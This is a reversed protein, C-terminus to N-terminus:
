QMSIAWADGLFKAAYEYSIYGYGKDGWTTGWQNQFKFLEKEDDFGVFCVAHGGIISEKPNPLPVKGTKIVEARHMSQYVSIGGVVPGFRQLAEKLEKETRVQQARSIKFHEAQETGKPPKAGYEGAKYPWVEEQVAGTRKLVEVADQIIAGTDQDASSGAKVRAYYYIYRPSITIKKKMTKGIQYELAAAVAFGVTSAEAGSDRVPLM